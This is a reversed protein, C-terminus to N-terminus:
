TRVDPSGVGSELNGSAQALALEYKLTLLKALNSRREVAGDM